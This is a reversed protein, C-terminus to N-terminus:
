VWFGGWKCLHHVQPRLRLRLLQLVREAVLQEGGEYVIV